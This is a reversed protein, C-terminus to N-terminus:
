RAGGTFNLNGKEDTLGAGHDMTQAAGTGSDVCIQDSSSKVVAM